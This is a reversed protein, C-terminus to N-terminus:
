NLPQALLRREPEHVVGAAPPVAAGAGARRRVHEGEAHHGALGVQVAHGVAAVVVQAETSIDDGGGGGGGAAQEDGAPRGGSM